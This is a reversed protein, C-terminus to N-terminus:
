NKPLAVEKKLSEKIEKQVALNQLNWNVTVQSQNVQEPLFRESDIKDGRDM